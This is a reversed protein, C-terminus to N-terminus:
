TRPRLKIGIWIQAIGFLLAFLGILVSLLVIGAGPSLALLIGFLLSLIGLALLFWSGGNTKIVQIGGAIEMIGTLIAWAAIVFIIAVAMASPLLIALIGVIGSLIGKVVPLGWPLDVKKRKYASVFSAAADFLIFFGFLMVLASVTIDPLFLALLGIIVALVGRLVSLGWNERQMGIFM